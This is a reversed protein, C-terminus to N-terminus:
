PKKRSDAVRKAFHEVMGDAGLEQARALPTYFGFVEDLVNTNVVFLLTGNAIRFVDTVGPLRLSLKAKVETAFRLWKIDDLLSPYSM